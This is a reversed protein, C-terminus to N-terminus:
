GYAANDSRTDDVDAKEKDMEVQSLEEALDNFMDHIRREIYEGPKEGDQLMTADDMAGLLVKVEAILEDLMETRKAAYDSHHAEDWEGRGNAHWGSLYALQSLRYLKARREQMTM